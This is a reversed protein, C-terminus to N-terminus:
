DTITLNGASMKILFILTPGDGEQTYLNGNKSWSPDTSVNTLGGELTINAPVNQPIRLILNSLGSQITATANRQLAGSFDLTYDGAGSEFVLTNFNANTLGTLKVNSAGTEYRLVGMEANNPSAFSLEVNSAGDKITLGTMSLGGFEYEANYAGATINLDIPTVGLKLKWESKFDSLDPVSRFRYNGQEIRIDDQEVTIEPKLDSINYTATGDVLLNEAAGPALNLDGAGFELRLHAESTDPAAVAIEDTVEPGPTPAKPLDVTFGCALSALTLLLITAVIKIKM